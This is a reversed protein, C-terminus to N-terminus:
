RSVAARVIPIVPLNKGSSLTLGQPLYQGNMASEGDIYLRRMKVALIARIATRM